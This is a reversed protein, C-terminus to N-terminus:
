IDLRAVRRRRGRALHCGASAGVVERRAQKGKRGRRGLRRDHMWGTARVFCRARAVAHRQPGDPRWGSLSEM